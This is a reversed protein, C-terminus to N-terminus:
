IELELADRETRNKYDDRNTILNILGTEDAPITRVEPDLMLRPTWEDLLRGKCAAIKGAVANTIWDEINLLDNQLAKIDVDSIEIGNRIVKM